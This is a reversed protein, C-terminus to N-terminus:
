SLLKRAIELFEKEYDLLYGREDKTSYGGEKLWKIFEKVSAESPDLFGACYCEESWSRYLILLDRDSINILSREPM